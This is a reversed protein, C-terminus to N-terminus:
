ACKAMLHPAHNRPIWWRTSTFLRERMDIGLPKFQILDAFNRDLRVPRQKEIGVRAVQIVPANM